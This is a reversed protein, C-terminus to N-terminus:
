TVPPRHGLNELVWPHEHHDLADAAPEYSPDMRARLRELTAFDRQSVVTVGSRHLLAASVGFGFRYRVPQEYRCGDSVVQSGCAASRDTLLAWEVNDALARETVARAGRVMGETLDAGHEDLVRANGDLVDFGDGGHLDPMTRPTGLGLDEPCMPILRIRPDRLWPMGDLSMGYSTGDIGVPLGFLCGSILVRWPDAVTPVRLDDVRARHSPLHM